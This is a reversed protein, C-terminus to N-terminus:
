GLLIVVWALGAAIATLAVAASGCDKAKKARPDIQPSLHDVVEEVATNMLEAALILVGLALILAREGTALDLWFALGASLLNLITWQRLTKESAWAATWGQWSWIVTNALRRAEARLFDAM